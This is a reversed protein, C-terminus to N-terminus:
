CEPTHANPNDSLWIIQEWEDLYFYSINVVWHFDSIDIDDMTEGGRYVFPLPGIPGLNDRLEELTLGPYQACLEQYDKWIRDCIPNTMEKSLWIANGIQPTWPLAPIEFDRKYELRAHDYFKIFTKM